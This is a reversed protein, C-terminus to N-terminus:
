NNSVYFTYVLMNKIIMDLTIAHWCGCGGQGIRKGITLKDSPIKWQALTLPDIHIPETDSLLPTIM